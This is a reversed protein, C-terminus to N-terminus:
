VIRTLCHAEFTYHGFRRTHAGERTRACVCVCVSVSVCMVPPKPKVRLRRLAQHRTLHADFTVDSVHTSTVEAEGCPVRPIVVETREHHLQRDQLMEVLLRPVLVNEREDPGARLTPQVCVECVCVCVCVCVCLLLLLLWAMLVHENMPAHQRVCVPSARM